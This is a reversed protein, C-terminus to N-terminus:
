NGFNRQLADWVLPEAVSLGGGAGACHVLVWQLKNPIHMGNKPHSHTRAFTQERPLRRLARSTASRAATASDSRGHRAAKPRPLHRCDWLKGKDAVDRHRAFVQARLNGQKCVRGPVLKLCDADAACADPGPQGEWSKDDAEGRCGSGKDRSFCRCGTRASPASSPLVM